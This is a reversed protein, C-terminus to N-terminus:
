RLARLGGDLVEPAVAPDRGLALLAEDVVHDLLEAVVADEELGVVRMRVRLVRVRDLGEQRLIADRRLALAPDEPLVREVEVAQGLAVQRRAELLRRRPASLAM